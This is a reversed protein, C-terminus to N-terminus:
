RLLVMRGVASEGEFSVRVFYVGSPVDRGEGDEGRWILEHPGAERRGDLIQSVLVGRIDYIGVRVQGARPIAFRVTGRANFPNPVVSQLALRRPIEDPRITGNEIRPRKVNGEVDLLELALPVLIIPPAERGKLLPGKEGERPLALIRLDSKGQIDDTFWFVSVERASEDWAIWSRDPELLRLSQVDGEELRATMRFARIPAITKLILEPPSGAVLVFSASEVGAQPPAIPSRELLERGLVILDAVNIRGDFNADAGLSEEATPVFRGLVADLIAGADDLGLHCSWDVDGPPRPPPLFRVYLDIPDRGTPVPNMEIQLTDGFAEGCRFDGVSAFIRVTDGSDMSGSSPTLDLWAPDPEITWAITEDGQNKIVFSSDSFTSDSDNGFFLNQSGNIIELGPAVGLSFRRVVSPGGTGCANVSSVRWFYTDLYELDTITLERSDTVVSVVLTDFAANISVEVFYSDVGPELNWTLLVPLDIDAEGNGPTLLSPPPRLSNLKGIPRCQGVTEGCDNVAAIQYLYSKGLQLSITDDFSNAGIRPAVLAIEEFPNSPNDKRMVRFANVQQTLGEPTLEWELIIRDCLDDTASCNIPESPLTRRGGVVICTDPAVECVNGALVGYQATDGHAITDDLYGTANGPISDILVPGPYRFVKLWNVDASLTAGSWDLIVGECSNFSASCENAAPSAVPGPIRAVVACPSGARGCGNVSLIEYTFNVAPPVSGFGASTSGSGLSDIVEGDRLLVYGSTAEVILPWQINISDCTVIEFSCEGVPPPPTNATLGTDVLGPSEECNFARFTYATSGDPPTDFYRLSDAPLDITVPPNGRVIRYGWVPGGEVPPTWELLVIECLDKSASFSAPPGPAILSEGDDECLGTSYGCKNWTAVRYRAIEGPPTAEDIMSFPPGTKVAISDDNRYIVYRNVVGPEVPASWSVTVRGCLSDSAACDVPPPPLGIRMGTDSPSAGSVGCLSRTRISYSVVQTSDVTVDQFVPDENKAVAGISDGDRYVVYETFNGGLTDWALSVFGCLSDSAIPAGPTPPVAGKLGMDSCVGVSYGCESWARVEYVHLTEAVASSDRFITEVMPVVGISDGDRFVIFSDVFGPATSPNWTLVVEECLDRSAVCSGPTPPLGLRRGTDTDPDSSLGCEGRTRVTYTYIITSDADFDVFAPSSVSSLTGVSDGDRFVVYHSFSGVTSDWTVSVFGCESDTAKVGSVTPPDEKRTGSDPAAFVDNCLGSAGVKYEYTVGAEATLDRYSTPIPQLLVALASGNRRIIYSNGEPSGVTWTLVVVGCSDDSASFSGPPAPDVPVVGTDPISHESQGCDTAGWVEYHYSVGPAPLTDTWSTGSVNITDVTSQGTETRGIQYGINGASSSDSWSLVIGSCEDTSATLSYPAFLSDCRVSLDDIFWGRFANRDGDKTDFVFRFQLEGTAGSELSFTREVWVALAQTGGSTNPVAASVALTDLTDKVSGLLAWSNGSDTSAWVDMEDSGFLDLGEIEWWTRFRLIVRKNPQAQIVPTWATDAHSTLSQGGNGTVQAGHDWPEVYTGTSEMSLVLLGDGDVAAPWFGADGLSSLTDRIFPIVRVSDPATSVHWDGGFSWDAPTSEFSENHPIEPTAAAVAAAGFFLSMILPLTAVWM